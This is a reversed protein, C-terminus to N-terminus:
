HQLVQLEELLVVGMWCSEVVENHVGLGERFPQDKNM